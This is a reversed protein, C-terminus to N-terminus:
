DWREEDTPDPGDSEDTGTPDSVNTAIDDPTGGTTTGEDAATSTGAGTATAGAATGSQQGVGMKVPGDPIEPLEGYVERYADAFGNAWIYAVASLGFFAVVAPGVITFFVISSVISVAINVVIALGVARLMTRNTVFARLVDIDFGASLEDTLVFNCIMIPAIVAIIVIGVLYLAGGILTGLFSVIASRLIAGLVFFVGAPVLTIFGVVLGYAFLIAFAKVGNISLQVIDYDSWEPPNQADGRLVQRMVELMYGYVPFIPLFIFFSLFTAASGIGVRKVWDEGETQYRLAAEIM